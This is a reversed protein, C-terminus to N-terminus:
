SISFYKDCKANDKNACPDLTFHFEDNLKNFFDKPTEWVDEKSSFLVETNM